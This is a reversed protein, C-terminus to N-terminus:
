FSLTKLTSRDLLDFDKREALLQLIKLRINKECPVEKLSWLHGRILGRLDADILSMLLPWWERIQVHWVGARLGLHLRRGVWFFWEFIQHVKMRPWFLITMSPCFDEWVKEKQVSKLPPRGWTDLRGKHHNVHYGTIYSTVRLSAVHLSGKIRQTEQM